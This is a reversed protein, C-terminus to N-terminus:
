VKKSFDFFTEEKKEFVLQGASVETLQKQFPAEQECPLHFRLTVTDAFVTDDIVGGFEMVLPQVRGYAAYDCVVQGVACLRRELVGAAAM